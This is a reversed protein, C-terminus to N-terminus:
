VKRLESPYCFRERNGVFKVTYLLFGHDGTNVKTIIGKTGLVIGDVTTSACQVNDGEQLLYKEIM